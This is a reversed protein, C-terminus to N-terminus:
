TVHSAVAGDEAMNGAWWHGDPSHRSRRSLGASRSRWPGLSLLSWWSSRAEGTLIALITLRSFSAWRSFLTFFPRLTNPELAGSSWRSWRTLVSGNLETGESSEFRVKQGWLRGPAPFVRCGLDRLGVQSDLVERAARLGRVRQNKQVERSSHGSSTHLSCHQLYTLDSRHCSALM